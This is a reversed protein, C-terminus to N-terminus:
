WRASLVSHFFTASSLVMSHDIRIRRLAVPYGSARRRLLISWLMTSDDAVNKWLTNLARHHANVDRVDATEFAMGDIEIISLLGRGDLAITTDDVHRLYPIYLSPSLERRGLTIADPM